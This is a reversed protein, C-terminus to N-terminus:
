SRTRFSTRVDTVQPNLPLHLREWQSEHSWPLPQPSPQRLVSDGESISSLITHIIGFLRLGLATHPPLPQVSNRPGRPASLLCSTLSPFSVQKEVRPPPQSVPAMECPFASTPQEPSGCWCSGPQLGRSKLLWVSEQLAGPFSHLRGWM